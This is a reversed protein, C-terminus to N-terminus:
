TLYIISVYLCNSVMVYYWLERREGSYVQIYESVLMAICYLMSTHVQMMHPNETEVMKQVM